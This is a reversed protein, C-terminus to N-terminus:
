IVTSENTSISWQSSINEASSRSSRPAPASCGGPSPPCTVTYSVTRAWMHSSVGMHAEQSVYTFIMNTFKLILVFFYNPFIQAKMHSNPVSILLKLFLVSESIILYKHIYWYRNVYSLFINVYTLWSACIHISLVRPSACIHISWDLVELFSVWLQSGLPVYTLIKVYTLRCQERFQNHWCGINVYTLIIVWM